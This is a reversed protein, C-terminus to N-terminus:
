GGGPGELGADVGGGEVGAEIGERGDDKDEAGGVVVGAKDGEGAGAHVARGADALGFRAGEEGAAVGAISLLSRDRKARTGEAANHELLGASGELRVGAEDVADREHRRAVADGVEEDDDRGAPQAGGGDAGLHASDDGADREV